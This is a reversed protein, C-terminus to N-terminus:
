KKARGAALARIRQASREIVDSEKHLAVQTQRDRRTKRLPKMEEDLELGAFLESLPVDLAEAIRIITTLRFDKRGIELHGVFTRHVKLYDAFAEQSSFGRAVRINHIRRGLRGLLKKVGVLILSPSDFRSCVNRYGTNPNATRRSRSFAFIVRWLEGIAGAQRQGEDRGKLAPVQFVEREGRENVDGIRELNTRLRNNSLAANDSSSVVQYGL